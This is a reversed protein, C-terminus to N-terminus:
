MSEKSAGQFPVGQSRAAAKSNDVDLIQKRWVSVQKQTWFEDPCGLHAYEDQILPTFLGEKNWTYTINPSLMSTDVLQKYGLVSSLLEDREEKNNTHICMKPNTEVKWGNGFQIYLSDIVYRKLNLYSILDKTYFFKKRLRRSVQINNAGKSFSPEKSYVLQVRDLTLNELALLISTYQTGEVGLSFSKENSLLEISTICNSKM